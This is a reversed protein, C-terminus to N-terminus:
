TGSLSTLINILMSEKHILHQFHSKDSMNSDLFIGLFRTSTIRPVDDGFIKLPLVPPIKRTFVM